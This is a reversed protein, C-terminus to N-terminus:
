DMCCTSLCIFHSSYIIEKEYKNKPNPLLVTKQENKITMGYGHWFFHM